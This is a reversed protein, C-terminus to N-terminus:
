STNLEDIRLFPKVSLLLLLLSLGLTTVDVSSLMIPGMIPPTVPPNTITNAKMRHMM